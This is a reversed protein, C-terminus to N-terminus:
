GGGEILRLSGRTVDRFTEAQTDDILEIMRAISAELREVTLADIVHLEQWSVDLLQGRPVALVRAVHGGYFQVFEVQEGSARARDYYPRFLCESGPFSEWLNQGALPGLGGEASPGVEVIRYDEDLVIAPVQRVTVAM